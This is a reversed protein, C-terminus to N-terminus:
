TSIKFVQFILVFINLFNDIQFCLIHQKKKQSNLNLNKWKLMIKFVEHVYGKIKYYNKLLIISTTDKSGDTTYSFLATASNLTKEGILLRIHM